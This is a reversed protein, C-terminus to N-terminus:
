KPKKNGFVDFKKQILMELPLIPIALIVISALTLLAGVTGIISDQSYYLLIMPVLISAFSLTGLIVWFIGLFRNAFKWTEKTKISRRSRYGLVYNIGNPAIIIFIVGFIIMFTPCLLALSTILFWFFM